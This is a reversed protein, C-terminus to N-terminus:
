VISQRPYSLPRNFRNAPRKSTYYQKLLRGAIQHADDGAALKKSYEKGKKDRVPVGSSSVLVVGGDDNTYHGIEVQGPYNDTERPPYVTITIQNLKM